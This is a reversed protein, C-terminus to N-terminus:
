PTLRNFKPSFLGAKPRKGAKCDELNRSVKSWILFWDAQSRGTEEWRFQNGEISSFIIRETEVLGVLESLRQQAVAIGSDPDDKWNATLDAVIQANRAM